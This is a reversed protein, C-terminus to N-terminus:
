GNKRGSKSTRKDAPATKREMYAEVVLTFPSAIYVTSYVGVFIGFCMAMAFSQLEGTCFVIIPVISILTVLGTLITRSLTVNVAKNILEKLPIGDGGNKIIERVRDYVVITDNV